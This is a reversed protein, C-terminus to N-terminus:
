VSSYSDLREQLCVLMLWIWPRAAHSEVLAGPEVDAHMNKVLPTPAKAAFPRKELRRNGSPTGAPSLVRIPALQSLLSLVLWSCRFIIAESQYQYEALCCPSLSVSPSLRERATLIRGISRVVTALSCM